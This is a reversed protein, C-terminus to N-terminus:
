IGVEDMPIRILTSSLIDQFAQIDIKPKNPHELNEFMNTKENYVLTDTSEEFIDKLGGYSKGRKLRISPKSGINIQVDTKLEGSWPNTSAVAAEFFPESVGYTSILAGIGKAEGLLEKMSEPVHDSYNVRWDFQTSVLKGDKFQLRLREGEGSEDPMDGNDPGIYFSRMRFTNEAQKDFNLRFRKGGYIWVGQRQSTFPIVGKTKNEKSLQAAKYALGEIYPETLISIGDQLNQLNQEVRIREEAETVPDFDFVEQEKKDLAEQAEVSSDKPILFKRTSQSAEAETGGGNSGESM